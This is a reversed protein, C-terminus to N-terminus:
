YFIENTFQFQLNLESTAGFFTEYPYSVFSKPAWTPYTGKTTSRHISTSLRSAFIAVLNGGVGNIVPQYMTIIPYVKNSERLIAGAASSILMAM